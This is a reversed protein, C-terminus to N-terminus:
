NQTKYISVQLDYIQMLDALSPDFRTTIPASLKQATTPPQKGFEKQPNPLDPKIPWMDADFKISWPRIKHYDSWVVKLCNHPTTQLIRMTPKTFWDSYTISGGWIQCVLTRDQPLKRLYSWPLQPLSNKHTKYILQQLDCIQILDVFVPDSRTEFPVSLM